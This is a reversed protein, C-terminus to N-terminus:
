SVGDRFMETLEKMLDKDVSMEALLAKKKFAQGELKVSGSVFKVKGIAKLSNLLSEAPNVGTQFYIDALCTKLPATLKNKITRLEAEIGIHMKNSNKLRQKIHMEVRIAAYFRLAKGAPTSKKSGFMVGIKQRTQNLIVLAINTKAIDQYIKKLANSMLRAQRAPTEDGYDAALEKKTPTAALTDWVVVIPRDVEKQAILTAIVEFCDEMTEPYVPLVRDLDLGWREAKQEELSYETDILVPVAGHRQASALICEGIASKGHSEDGYIELIRGCPIGGGLIADLPPCGSPIWHRVTPLSSLGVGIESKGKAFKKKVAKALSDVAKKIDKKKSV